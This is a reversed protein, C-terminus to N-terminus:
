EEAIELDLDDDEPPEEGINFDRSGLIFTKLPRTLFKKFYYELNDFDKFLKKDEFYEAPENEEITKIFESFTERSKGANALSTKAPDVNATKMLDQLEKILGGPSKSEERMKRITFKTLCIQELLTEEAKTDCKHTKKWDSLEKELWVYDDYELNSGWRVRLDQAEPVQQDLLGDDAVRSIVPERFTLDQNRDAKDRIDGKNMIIHLKAKYIGFISSTNIGKKTNTDIHEMTMNVADESYAINLYRCIKLIAKDLIMGNSNYVLDFMANCCDKCVSMKGNADVFGNDVAEFFDDPKKNKMCKRCYCQELTVGTKSIYDKATVVTKRTITRGKQSEVVTVNGTNLKKSRTAM